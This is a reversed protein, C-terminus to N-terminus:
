RHFQGRVNLLVQDPHGVLLSCEHEQRALWGLNQKPQNVPKDFQVQRVAVAAPGQDTQSLGDFDDAECRFGVRAATVPLHKLRMGQGFARHCQEGALIEYFEEVPDLM